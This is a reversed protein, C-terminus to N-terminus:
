AYVLFPFILNGQIEGKTEHKKALPYVTFAKFIAGKLFIFFTKFFPNVFPYPNSIITLRRS